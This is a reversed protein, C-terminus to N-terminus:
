APEQRCPAPPSRGDEARNSPRFARHICLLSVPTWAVLAAGYASAVAFGSHTHTQTYAALSALVAPLLVHGAAIWDHGRGILVSGAISIIMTAAGSCVLSAVIPLTELRGDGLVALAAPSLLLTLIALAVTGLATALPTDMRGPTANADRCLRAMQAAGFSNAVLTMPARIQASWGFAISDKTPCTATVLMLVYVFSVQIATGSITAPPATRWVKRM